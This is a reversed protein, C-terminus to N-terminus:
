GALRALGPDNPFHRLGERAAARAEERRGLRELATARGLYAQPYRAGLAIAREFAGLSGEWDETEALLIGLNVFVGPGAEPREAARRYAALAETKRGARLLALGLNAQFSGNEPTLFVARRFSELAGELNGAQLRLVGRINHYEDIRDDRALGEEIVPALEPGARRAQLMPWLRLTVQVLLPDRKLAERYRAEALAHDGEAEAIRGEIAAVLAPRSALRDRYTALEGRARDPREEALHLEALYLVSTASFTDPFVKLGEHLVEAAEPIRGQAALCESLMTFTKPLQEIENAARLEKEAEAYRGQNMYYTALNRHYTVNTKEAGSAGTGAGAELESVDIYGLAALNALMEEQATSMEAAEGRPPGTGFGEYSAVLTPPHAATFDERLAELLPRGPMDEARPLGLLYLATPAIDFMDVDGITAGRRAPGGWLVWMGEERHWEVPQESTFPLRDRPREAGTRFGHDSVLMVAYRGEAADLLEGLLEDSWAYFEDVVGSFRPYEHDPALPHRPPMLHQFQHGVLDIGEFYVSILDLDDREILDLGISQFNHTMTLARILFAVPRRPLTEKKAGPKRRIGRGKAQGLKAAAGGSPDERLLAQAAEYEARTAPLFRRVEEHSIDEFGKLRGEIHGIYEAPYIVGPPLPSGPRHTLTAFATLDSALVGLVPEAPHTAWWGVFASGRGLDTLMNWLAKVKRFRSSIPVRRGAAEDYALFDAIGHVEPGYGTAMTTWILPSMMPDFSRIPARVGERVLRALHPMRGAAMLRDAILWDSGDWGILLLKEGTPRHAAEVERRRATETRNAEPDGPSAGSAGGPASGAEGVAPETSCGAAALLLLLATLLCPLSRPVVTM